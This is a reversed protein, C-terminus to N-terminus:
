DANESGGAGRRQYRQAPSRSRSRGKRGRKSQLETQKATNSTELLKTIHDYEEQMAQQQLCETLSEIEANAQTAILTWHEILIDRITINLGIYAREWKLYLTRNIDSPPTVPKVQLGRPVQNRSKLETLFHVHHEATVRKNHLRRLLKFTPYNIDQIQINSLEATLQDTTVTIQPNDITAPQIDAPAATEPQNTSTADNTRIRVNREEIELSNREKRKPLRQQGPRLISSEETPHGRGLDRDAM